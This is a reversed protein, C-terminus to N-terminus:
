RRPPRRARGGRGPRGDPVGPPASPARALRGWRRRWGRPPPRSGGPRRGGGARARRKRARNDRRRSWSRRFAADGRGDLVLTQGGATIVIDHEALLGATDPTAAVAEVEPPVDGSAYPGRLLRVRADPLAEAAARALGPGGATVDGGGTAVLVSEAADRVTAPPRERFMRRLCAFRLGVLRRGDPEGAAGVDVVLATGPPADGGDLFVGAKGAPRHAGPRRARGYLQRPRARRGRNARSGRGSGVGRRRRDHGVVGRAWAGRGGRRAGEPGRGPRLLAVPPRPGRERERRGGPGLPERPM